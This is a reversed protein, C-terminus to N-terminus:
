VANSRTFDVPSLPRARYNTMEMSDEDSLDDGGQHVLVERSGASPTPTLSAHTNGHTDDQASPPPPAQIPLSLSATQSHMGGNRLGSETMTTPYGTEYGYHAPGGRFGERSLARLIPISAAVICVAAEAFGLAV